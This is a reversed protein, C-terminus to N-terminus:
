NNEKMATFCALLVLLLFILHIKTIHPARKVFSRVGLIVILICPSRLRLIKQLVAEQQMTCFIVTVDIYIVIIFFKLFINLFILCSFVILAITTTAGHLLTGKYHYASLRAFSYFLGSFIRPFVGSATSFYEIPLFSGYRFLRYKLKYAHDMFLPHQAKM